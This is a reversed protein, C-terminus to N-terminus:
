AVRRAHTQTQARHQKLEVLLDADRTTLISVDLQRLVTHEMKLADQLYDILKHELREDAM